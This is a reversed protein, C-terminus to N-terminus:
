FMTWRPNARRGPEPCAGAGEGHRRTGTDGRRRGFAGTGLLITGEGALGERAGPGNPMRLFHHPVFPRHTIMIPLCASTGSWGFPQFKRSALRHLLPLM